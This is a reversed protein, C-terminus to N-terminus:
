WEETAGFTILANEFATQNTHIWDASLASTTVRAEDLVGGLKKGLSLGSLNIVRPETFAATQVPEGDVYLTLETDTMVAALYHWQGDLQPGEM